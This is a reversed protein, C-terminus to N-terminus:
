IGAGGEFVEFLAQLTSEEDPGDATVELAAGQIAGLALLEFVSDAKATPAGAHAVRVLSRHAQVRKVIQAAVRLHVGGENQVVLRRTKM